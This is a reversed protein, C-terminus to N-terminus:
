SDCVTVLVSLRLVGYDDAIYVQVCESPLMAIGMVCSFHDGIMEANQKVHTDYLWLWLGSLTHDYESCEQLIPPSLQASFMMLAHDQFDLPVGGKTTMAGFFRITCATQEQWSGFMDWSNLTSSTAWRM